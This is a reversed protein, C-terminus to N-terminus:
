LGFPDFCVQGDTSSGIRCYPYNLGGGNSTDVTDFFKILLNNGSGQSLITDTRTWGGVNEAKASDLDQWYLHKAGNEAKMSCFYYGSSWTSKGERADHTAVYFTNGDVFLVSAYDTVPNPESYDVEDSNPKFGHLRFRGQLVPLGNPCGNCTFSTDALNAGGWPYGLGNHDVVSDGSFCAPNQTPETVSANTEVGTIGSRTATGDSAKPYVIGAPPTLATDGIITTDTGPVVNNDDDGCGASIVAFGAVSAVISGFRRVM